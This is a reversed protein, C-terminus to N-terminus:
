RDASLQAVTSPVVRWNPRGYPTPWPYVERDNFYVVATMQPFQALDAVAVDAAWRSKYDDDGVYGLEAVVVPKRFGAVADYAPKLQEVFSRDRGFNDRDFAQLGFVTLGVVDVYADGPYYPTLNADGRPSWMFKASAVQPRCRDVFHRYASVYDKPEWGAWIFRGIDHEMEQAFRITVPSKLQGIAGCISAVNGDFRGASIGTRLATPTIRANRDWSWPEITILLSRGRALAYGDAEGLSALEVDEWPMFLHEIAVDADDRFDGHPDYAGIALGPAHHVPKKGFLGTSVASAAQPALAQSLLPVALALIAVASVTTMRRTRQKSWTTRM